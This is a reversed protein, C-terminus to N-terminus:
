YSMKKASKRKYFGACKIYAVRCLYAIQSPILYNLNENGKGIWLM